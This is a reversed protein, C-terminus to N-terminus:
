SKRLRDFYEDREENLQKDLDYRDYRRLASQIACCMTDEERKLCRRWKKVLREPGYEKWLADPFSDDMGVDWARLRISEMFVGM